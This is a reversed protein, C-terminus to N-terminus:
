QPAVTKSKGFSNCKGKPDDLISVFFGIFDTNCRFIYITYQYVPRGLMLVSLKFVNIV